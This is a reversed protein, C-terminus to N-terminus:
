DVNYVSAHSGESVQDTTKFRLMVKDAIDLMENTLLFKIVTIKREGEVGGSLLSEESTYSNSPLDEAIYADFDALTVGMRLINITFTKEISWSGKSMVAALEVEADSPHTSPPHTILLSDGLVQAFGDDDVEWLISTGNEGSLKLPVESVVSSTDGLTIADLDQQLLM